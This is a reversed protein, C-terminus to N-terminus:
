VATPKSELVAGSVHIGATVEIRMACVAGSVQYTSPNPFYHATDRSGDSRGRLLIRRVPGSAGGQEVSVPHGSSMVGNWGADRRGM